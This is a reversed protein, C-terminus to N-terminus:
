PLLAIKFAPPSWNGNMFAAELGSPIVDLEQKRIMSNVQKESM